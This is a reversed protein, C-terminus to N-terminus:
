FCGLSVFPLRGKTEQRINILSVQGEGKTSLLIFKRETDGGKTTFEKVARTPLWVGVRGVNTIQQCLEADAKFYTHGTLLNRFESKESFIRDM